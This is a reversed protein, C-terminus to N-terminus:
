RRPEDPREPRPEEGPAAGQRRLWRERALRGGLGPAQGPERLPRLRALMGLFAKQQEGDLMGRTALVHDVFTKELASSRAAAEGLLDDIRKRDPQPRAVERRLERRAEELALRDSQTSEFFRRQQEVFRERQEPSLHLREAMQLFAARPPEPNRAPGSEGAPERPPRKALWAGLLGCNLGVSLLLVAFVWWRRM